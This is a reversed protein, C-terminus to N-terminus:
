KIYATLTASNTTTVYVGKTPPITSNNWTVLADAVYIGLGMSLTKVNTMSVFQRGRGFSLKITSNAPLFIPPFGMPRGNIDALGAVDVFYLWRDAGLLETAELSVLTNYTGAAQQVATWCTFAAGTMPGVKTLGFIPLESSDIDVSLDMTVAGTSITLTAETTSLCVILGTQVPVNNLLWVELGSTSIDSAAFAFGNTSTVLFSALPVTSNAPVTAQNFFQLFYQVNGPTADGNIFGRFSTVTPMTAMAPVNAITSGSPISIQGSGGPQAPVVILSHAVGATQTLGNFTSITKKPM